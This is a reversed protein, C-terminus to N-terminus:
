HLDSEKVGLKSLKVMYLGIAKFSQSDPCYRDVVHYKGDKVGELYWGTNDLCITVEGRENPEPEKEESPLSWFSAAESLGILKRWEKESLRRRKEGKLTGWGYGVQGSLYKAVLVYDKGNREVRISLAHSFTPSVFIRYVEAEPTVPPFIRPERFLTLTNQYREDKSLEKAPSEQSFGATPLLLLAALICLRNRMLYFCRVGRM